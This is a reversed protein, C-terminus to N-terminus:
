RQGIPAHGAVPDETGSLLAALDNVVMFPVGIGVVFAAPEVRRTVMLPLVRWAQTGAPTNLLTLVADPNNAVADSKAGLVNIFGDRGPDTFKNMSRSREALDFLTAVEHPEYPAKPERARHQRLEAIGGPGVVKAMSRLTSAVTAVTAVSRAPVVRDLTAVFEEITKPHFVADIRLPLYESDCWAALYTAYRLLDKARAPTEPHCTAVAERVLTEVRGFREVSVPEPIFEAAAVPPDHEPAVAM